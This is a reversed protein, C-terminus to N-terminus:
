QEDFSDSYLSLIFWIEGWETCSSLRDYITHDDGNLMKKPLNNVFAGNKVYM